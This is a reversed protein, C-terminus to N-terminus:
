SGATARDDERTDIPDLNPDGGAYSPPLSSVRIGTTKRSEEGLFCCFFSAHIGALLYVVFLVLCTLDIYGLCVSCEM